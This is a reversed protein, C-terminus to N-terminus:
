DVRVQPYQTLRIEETSLREALEPSVERKVAELNEVSEVAHRLAADIVEADADCDLAGKAQDLLKERDDTARLAIRDRAM